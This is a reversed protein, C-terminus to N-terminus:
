QHWGKSAMCNAYANHASLGLNLGNLFGVAGCNKNGYCTNNQMAQQRDSYDQGVLKCAGDDMTFQSPTHGSADDRQFMMPACGAILFVLILTLYRKM